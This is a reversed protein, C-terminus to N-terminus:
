FALHAQLPVINTAEVPMIAFYEAALKETVSDGAVTCVSRYNEFIEKPSTNAELAVADANKLAAMRYSIFSKRLVNKTWKPWGARRVIRAQFARQSENTPMVAGATHRYNRLWAAAAPLFPPLYRRNIKSKAAPIQLSAQDWKVMRWDLRKQTITRVGCFGGFVVYPLWPPEFEATLELLLKFEGPSLINIEGRTHKLKKVLEAEHEKGRILYKQDRAYNYLTVLTDRIQNRRAAGPPKAKKGKSSVRHSASIWEALENAPVESILRAGFRLTFRTLDLRIQRCYDDSLDSKEVLFQTVVDSIKRDTVGEGAHRLYFRVADLLSVQGLLERATAYETAVLDLPLNYKAVTARAAVMARAQNGDLENVDVQGNNIRIAADELVKRLAPETTRTVRKRQSGHYYWSVFRGDEYKHIPFTIGLIRIEGKVTQTVRPM